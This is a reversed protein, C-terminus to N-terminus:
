EQLLSQFDQWITAHDFAMQPLNDIPFWAAQAADDAGQVDPLADTECIAYYIMSVTRGRPDRDPASYPRFPQPVLGYDKLFLGTEERLERVACRELTEDEEVFGGPFAYRGKFPENNRQILLLHRSKDPLQALLIFDTTLAPMPYAYTYVPKSYGEVVLVM